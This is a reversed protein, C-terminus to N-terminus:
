LQIQRSVLFESRPTEKRSLRMQPTHPQSRSQPTAIRQYNHHQRSVADGEDDVDEPVLSYIPETSDECNATSEQVRLRTPRSSSRSSRQLFITTILVTRDRMPRLRRVSRQVPSFRTGVM